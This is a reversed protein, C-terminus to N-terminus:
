EGYLHQILFMKVAGMRLKRSPLTKTIHKQRDNRRNVPPTGMDMNCTAHVEEGQLDYESIDEM